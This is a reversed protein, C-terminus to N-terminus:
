LEEGLPTQLPTLFTKIFTGKGCVTMEPFRKYWDDVPVEPDTDLWAALSQLADARINREEIRKLLYALM